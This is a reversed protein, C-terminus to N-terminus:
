FLGLYSQEVQVLVIEGMPMSRREVMEYRCSKLLLHLELKSINPNSYSRLKSPAINSLEIRTFQTSIGSPSTCVKSSPPLSVRIICADEILYEWRALRAVAHLFLSLSRPAALVARSELCCSVGGKM